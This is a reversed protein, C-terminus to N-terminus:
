VIRTEIFFVAKGWASQILRKIEKIDTVQQSAELLLFCCSGSGSVGCLHGEGRLLELLTAISLYKNTVVPEFDNYVLGELGLDEEFTKLRALAVAESEYYEPAGAKMTQYAWVTSIGFDPKFLLLRQGELASRVAGPVPSLVEGRGQMLTVEPELFFPCDSGLAAALERLEHTGFPEGLLANMGKLAVAADSSGGGLGAGVPIRKKLEFEFFVAQRAAQAELLRARFKEAAQLILNSGDTPVLPADVTLHDSDAGEGAIAITLADHFELPAVLSTLAHFGDARPGHVSLMLNVKAPARLVLEKSSSFEDAEAQM